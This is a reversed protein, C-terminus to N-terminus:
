PKPNLMKSRTSARHIAKGVLRAIDRSIGCKVCHLSEGHDGWSHDCAVQNPPINM